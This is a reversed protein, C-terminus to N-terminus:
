ASIATLLYQIEADVDNSSFVTKAVEKRFQEGVRKKLRHAAVKIAGETSSEQRAIEKYGVQNRGSWLTERLTDFLSAKGLAVYERRVISFSNNLIHTAWNRDYTREPSENNGVLEEQISSEFERVSDLSLLTIGGGRKQCANHERIQSRYNQFSAVLFSRFHGRTPDAAAISGHSLLHEFFGQVLDEADSAKVGQRRAFAYLPPWYTRCLEDLAAQSNRTKSQGADVVMTWHTTGFYRPDRSELEENALTQERKIM